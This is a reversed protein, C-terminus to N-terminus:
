KADRCHGCRGDSALTQAPVRVGCQGCRGLAIPDPQRPEVTVKWRQV